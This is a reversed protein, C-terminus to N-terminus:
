SKRRLRLGGGAPKNAERKARARRAADLTEAASHRAYASIGGILILLCLFGGLAWPLGAQPPDISIWYSYPNKPDPHVWLRSGPAPWQPSRHTSTESFRIGGLKWTTLLEFKPHSKKRNSRRDIKQARWSEVEYAPWSLREATNQHWAITGTLVLFALLSSIILIRKM